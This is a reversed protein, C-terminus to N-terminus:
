EYYYYLNYEKLYHLIEIKNLTNTKIDNFCIISFIKNTPEYM